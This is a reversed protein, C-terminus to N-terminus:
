PRFFNLSSGFEFGHSHYRHKATYGYMCKCAHLLNTNGQYGLKSYEAKELKDKYNVIIRPLRPSYQPIIGSVFFNRIVFSKSLCKLLFILSLLVVHRKSSKM